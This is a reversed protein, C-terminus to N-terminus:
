CCTPGKDEVTLSERVVKPVQLRHLCDHDKTHSPPTSALYRRQGVQRDKCVRGGGKAKTCGLVKYKGLAVVGGEVGSLRWYRNKKQVIDFCHLWVVDLM